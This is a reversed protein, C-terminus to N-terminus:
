KEERLKDALKRVIVARLDHLALLLRDSTEEIVEPEARSQVWHAFLNVEEIIREPYEADRRSLSALRADRWAEIETHEGPTLERGGQGRIEGNRLNVSAIQVLDLRGQRNETDVRFVAAGNERLRFYLEPLDENM